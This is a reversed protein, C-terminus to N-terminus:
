KSRVRSSLDKRGPFASLQHQLTAFAQLVGVTDTHTCVPAAVWIGARGVMHCDITM